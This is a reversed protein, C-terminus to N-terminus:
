TAYPKEHNIECDNCGRINGVHTGVLCLGILVTLLPEWFTGHMANEFVTLLCLGALALVGPVLVSLRRHRRYGVGIALLSVPVIIALMVLHFIEDVSGFASLLGIAFLGAVSAVCHIMCLSSLGIAMVDLRFRQM